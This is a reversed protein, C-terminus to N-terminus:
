NHQSSDRPKAGYRGLAVIGIVICASALYYISSQAGFNMLAYQFRGIITTRLWLPFSIFYSLYEGVVFLGSIIFAIATFRSQPLHHLALWTLALIGIVVVVPTISSLLIMPRFNFTIKADKWLQLLSADIAYALVYAVTLSAITILVPSRLYSKVSLNNM